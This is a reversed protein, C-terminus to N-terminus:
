QDKFCLCICVGALNPTRRRWRGLTLVEWVSFKLICACMEGNLGVKIIQGANKKKSSKDNQFIDTTVWQITKM